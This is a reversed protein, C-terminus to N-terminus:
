GLCAQGSSPAVARGGAGGGGRGARRDYDAGPPLDRSRGIIRRHRLSMELRPARLQRALQATARRQDGGADGPRAVVGGVLVRVAGAAVKQVQEAHGQAARHAHVVSRRERQIQGVRVRVLRQPLPRRGRGGLDGGAGAALHPREGAQGGAQAPTRDGRERRGVDLGAELLAAHQPALDPGTVDVHQVDRQGVRQDRQPQLVVVRGDGLQAQRGLGRRRCVARPHGGRARAPAGPGNAGGHLRVDGRAPHGGGIRGDDRRVALDQM